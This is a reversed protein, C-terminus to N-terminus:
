KTEGTFACVANDQECASWHALLVAGFIGVVFALLGSRIIQILRDTM